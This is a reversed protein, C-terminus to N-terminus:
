TIVDPGPRDTWHRIEAIQDAAAIVPALATQADLLLLDPATELRELYVRITAGDTGTGSLRFVARAGGDFTIVLGQNTAAIRAFLNLSRHKCETKVSVEVADFRTFLWLRTVDLIYQNEQAIIFGLCEKFMSM